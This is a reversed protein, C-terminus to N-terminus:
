IIGEERLVQGLAKIRGHYKNGRRDFLMRKINLEQCKQVIEKGLNAAAQTKNTKQNNSLFGAITKSQEDNIIQAQLHRNSRSVALRPLQATGRIKSRIKNIIQKKRQKSDRKM